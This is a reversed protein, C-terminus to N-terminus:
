TVTVIQRMILPWFVVTTSIEPADIVVSQVPPISFQFAQTPTDFEVATDPLRGDVAVVDVDGIVEDVVEGVVSTEGM